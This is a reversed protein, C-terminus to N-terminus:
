SAQLEQMQSVDGVHDRRTSAIRTWEHGGQENGECYAWAGEVLTILPGPGHATPHARCVLEILVSM